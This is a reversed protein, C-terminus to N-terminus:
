GNDQGEKFQNFKEIVQSAENGGKDNVPFYVHAPHSTHKMVFTVLVRRDGEAQELLIAAVDSLDIAFWNDYLISKNLQM